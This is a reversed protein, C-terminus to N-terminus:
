QDNPTAKFVADIVHIIEYALHGIRTKTFHKKGGERFIISANHRADSLGAELEVIRANREALQESQALSIASLNHRAQDRQARVGAYMNDLQSIRGVIDPLPQWDPASRRYEARWISEILALVERNAEDLEERLDASAPAPTNAIRHRAFAQVLPHDDSRGEFVDMIKDEIHSKGFARVWASGAAERDCPLVTLDGM